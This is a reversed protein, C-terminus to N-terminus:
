GINEKQQYQTKSDIVDQLLNRWKKTAGQYFSTSRDKIRDGNHRIFVERIACIKNYISTIKHRRWYVRYKRFCPDNIRHTTDPRTSSCQPHETFQKCCFTSSLHLLQYTFKKQSTKYSIMNLPYSVKKNLLSTLM